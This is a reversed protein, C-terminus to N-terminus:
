LSSMGTVRTFPTVCTTDVGSPPIMEPCLASIWSAPHVGGSITTFLGAAICM